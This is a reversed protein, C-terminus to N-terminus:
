GDSDLAKGDRPWTSGLRASDMQILHKEMEHGHVTYRAKHSGDSDVAM